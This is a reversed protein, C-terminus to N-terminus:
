TAHVARVFEDILQQQQEDTAADLRLTNGALTLEVVRPSTGRKLWSRVASVIATVSELSGKVGVLLAGVMAIDLARTGDPAQGGSVSTVDDAVEGLETRLLRTLEDLRESDAGPESITVLVRDRDRDQPASDNVV